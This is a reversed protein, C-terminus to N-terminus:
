LSKIRKILDAIIEPRYEPSVAAIQQPKSPLKSTIEVTKSVIPRLELRPVSFEVDFKRKPETM